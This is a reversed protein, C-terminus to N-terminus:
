VSQSSRVHKFDLFSISDGEITMVHLCQKDKNVYSYGNADSDSLASLLTTAQVSRRKLVVHAGRNHTQGSLKHEMSGEVWSAKIQTNAQEITITMGHSDRWDGEFANAGTVPVYFADVFSRLFRQEEEASELIRRYEEEEKERRDALAALARGVAPNVDDEKRAADILETAEGEFGADLYRFALNAMALTVKANSASRYNSIALTPLKADALLVALNNFAITDKPHISQISHYNLIALRDFGVESQAYAADFRAYLDIPKYESVKDLVMARMKPENRAEEVEAIGEYLICRVPDTSAEALLRSLHHLGRKAQGLNRDCRAVSVARHARETEDTSAQMAREYVARAKDYDKVHLHCSALLSLLVSRQDAHQEALERLRSLATGDAAHEFRLNWYFGENRVRKVPDSESAQMKDYEATAAENDGQQFALVMEVLLNTKSKAPEMSKDTPGTSVSSAESLIEETEDLSRTPKATAAGDVRPTSFQPMMAQAYESAETGSRYETPGYLVQPKFWLVSAFFAFILLTFVVFFVTLTIQIGNDTKIVGTVLAIEAVGLFVSIAWLPGHSKRTSVNNEHGSMQLLM